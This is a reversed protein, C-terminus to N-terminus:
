HLQAKSLAIRFTALRTFLLTSQLGTPAIKCPQALGVVYQKKHMNMAAFLAPLHVPAPHRDM